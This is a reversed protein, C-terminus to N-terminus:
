MNMKHLSRMFFHSVLLRVTQLIGDEANVCTILSTKHRLTCDSDHTANILISLFLTSEEWMNRGRIAMM